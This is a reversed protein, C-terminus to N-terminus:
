IELWLPVVLISEAKQGPESAGKTGTKSGPSFPMHLAFFKVHVWRIRVRSRKARM